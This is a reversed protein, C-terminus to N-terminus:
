KAEQVNVYITKKKNDLVWLDHFRRYDIAWANGKQNTEPDFIRIIDQKTVAIPTSKAVVIFNINKGDDAKKYGGQEQGSTKGDLIQISTYMRNSAVAILPCGDITPVRTDIGGQSFTSSQLKGLAVEEVASITDYTALIFIEDDVGNERVVRIGKKIEKIINEDVTYGYKVQTDGDVGLAYTALKSIRYADIEPVVKTRQFEGMVRSATPIFAAEDVEMSDLNFRRGRDQKMSLTQYELNVAGDEYGSKRDYNAQGDTDMKPIKVEDGGTYKIGAINNDMFGTKLTQEALLDLNAQFIKAKEINNARGSM